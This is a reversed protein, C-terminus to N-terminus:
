LFRHDLYCQLIDPANVFPPVAEHRQHTRNGTPSDLRCHLPQIVQLGRCLGPLVCTCDTLMHFSSISVPIVNRSILPEIASFIKKNLSCFAPSNELKKSTLKWLKQGSALGTNASCDLTGGGQVWQLHTESHSQSSGWLGKTCPSRVPLWGCRKIYGKLEIFSFYPLCGNLCQAAEEWWTGWRACLVSVKTEWLCRLFSDGSLLHPWPTKSQRWYLNM